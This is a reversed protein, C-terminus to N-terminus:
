TRSWKFKEMPEVKDVAFATVVEGVEEGDQNHYYRVVVKLFDGKDPPPLVGHRYFVERDAHGRDFNVQHPSVLTSEISRENGRMEHHQDLIHDVWNSDSLTVRRGAYDFCTLIAV